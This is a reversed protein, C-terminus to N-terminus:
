DQFSVNRMSRITPEFGVGEAMFLVSLESPLANSQFDKRCPEIGHTDVLIRLEYLPLIASKSETYPPELGDSRAM